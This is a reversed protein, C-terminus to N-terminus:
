QIAAKLSEAIERMKHPAVKLVERDYSLLGNTEDEVDSVQTYVAACLGSKAAPIVERCYLELLEKEFKERDEFFRYGYAKKLNYVHGEPRYSYGGFESLVVPRQSAKFKYPKFYIHESHVDSKKQWFWGSTSDIFRTSDLAKLRDYMEDACFQGWGENFITWYCISPHNKLAAVTKEMEVIFMERSKKNTHLYKDSIRKVGVTPLATDRIFSYHGNNVMDQFVVMGFRDCDYYFQQPEIKIHKRLMNFGLEKMKLIDREYGKEDAPTLLGDSFYGQDLLGHFFYPSGNLCLRAKGDVNKIDLTRLAFYSQVRDEGAEVTFEYLYPNEPSWLEPNELEIRVSGGKLEFSKEGDPTNLAIKGSEVGEVKIQAGSEDTSVSIAKVFTEPVSELWVTQWIGSTPTYWMGGRDRRQKGYPMIHESLRDWVRLVLTNEETLYETIDFSFADYGGIHEGLLKGNLFVECCSDVAGFNLIVRDKKFGEPLSFNRKYFLYYEEPFVDCVESLLSEPSFPVVISRGFEKPIERQPQAEFEWRGNLCLFSDRKLLPRPYSNHPIEPLAKGEKTYLNAFLKDKM